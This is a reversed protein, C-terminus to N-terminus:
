AVAQRESSETDLNVQRVVDAWASLRGDNWFSGDDFTAESVVLWFTLPELGKPRADHSAEPGGPAEGTELWHLDVGTAEAIARLYLRRPVRYGKEYNVVTTRAIDAREALQEQELGAYERAIRLRHALTIQPM